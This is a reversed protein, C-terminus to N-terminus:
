LAGMWACRNTTAPPTGTVAPNQTSTAAAAVLAAKIQAPTKSPNQTLYLAAIGAVVPSAMSTGSLTAYSSNLYTSLIKDGPADISVASGLNSYSAFANAETIAGVCMATTVHAPSFQSASSSSNGAAVAFPVGAAIASAVAVDLINYATTGVSAGLSMNAVMRRNPNSVKLSRVYNVGAIVTSFQGSGSADLVRVPYINAGPCVGVVGYLNDVAGVIGAVHTGHGNQDNASTQGPVYSIGPQVVRLDPHNLQVGTDIIFIDVNVNPTGGGVRISSTTAGVRRPGWPVVQTSSPPAPCSPAPSLGIIADEHITAITPHRRLIDLVEPPVNSVAVGRVASDYRHGVVMGSAAVAQSVLALAGGLDAVDDRFVLIYSNPAVVGRHRWVSASARGGSRSGVWALSPAVGGLSDAVEDAVESPFESSSTSGTQPPPSPTSPSSSPACKRRFRKMRRKANARAFSAGMAILVGLLVVLLLLIVVGWWWM